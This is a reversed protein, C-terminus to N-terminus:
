EEYIRIFLQIQYPLECDQPSTNEGIKMTVSRNIVNYTVEYVGNFEDVESPQGYNAVIMEAISAAKIPFILDLHKEEDLYCNGYWDRDRVVELWTKSLDENIFNVNLSPMANEDGGLVLM